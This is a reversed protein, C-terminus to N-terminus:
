MPEIMNQTFSLCDMIAQFAVHLKPAFVAIDIQPIKQAFIIHMMDINCTFHKCM